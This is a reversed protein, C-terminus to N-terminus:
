KYKIDLLIHMPTYQDAIQLELSPDYSECYEYDIQDRAYNGM